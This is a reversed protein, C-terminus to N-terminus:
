HGKAMSEGSPEAGLSYITLPSLPSQLFPVPRSHVALLGLIRYILHPPAVAVLLLLPPLLKALPFWRPPRTAATTKLRSPPCLTLSRRTPCILLALRSICPIPTNGNLTMSCPMVM